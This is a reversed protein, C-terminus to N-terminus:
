FWWSWEVGAADLADGLSDEDVDDLVTFNAKAHKRFHADTEGRLADAKSQYTYDLGSNDLVAQARKAHRANTLYFVADKM